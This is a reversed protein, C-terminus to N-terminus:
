SRAGPAAGATTGGGGSSTGGTDGTGGSSSEDLEEEEEPPIDLELAPDIIWRNVYHDYEAQKVGTNPDLKQVAVQFGIMFEVETQVSQIQYMWESQGTASLGSTMSSPSIYPTWSVPDSPIVGAIIQNMVSEVVLESETLRQAKLANTTALRMAQSLYAAAVALIALALVVELLSLGMAHRQLRRVPQRIPTKM